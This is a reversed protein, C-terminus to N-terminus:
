GRRLYFIATTQATAGVLCRVWFEKVEAPGEFESAPALTFFNEDADFDAELWYVKVSTGGAAEENRIQLHSTPQPASLHVRAAAASAPALEATFQLTRPQHGRLGIASM